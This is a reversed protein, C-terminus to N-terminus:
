AAIASRAREFNKSIYAVVEQTPPLETGPDIWRGFAVVGAYWTMCDNEITKSQPPSNGGVLLVHNKRTVHNGLSQFYLEAIEEKTLQKLDNGTKPQM